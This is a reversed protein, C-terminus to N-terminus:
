RNVNRFGSVADVGQKAKKATVYAVVAIPVFWMAVEGFVHAEYNLRGAVLQCDSFTLMEVSKWLKSSVESIQASTMGCSHAVKHLYWLKAGLRVLSIALSIGAALLIGMAGGRVRSMLEQLNVLFDKDIEKISM